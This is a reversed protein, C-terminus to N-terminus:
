KAYEFTYGGTQTYRGKIDEWLEDMINGGM